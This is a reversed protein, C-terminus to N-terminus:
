CGDLRNKELIEIIKKGLELILSLFEKIEKKELKYKQDKLYDLDPIKCVFVEDVVGMNHKYIHRVQFMKLLFDFKEKDIASPLSIDISESLYDSLLELKQFLNRTSPLVMAYRSQLTKGLGDFSSVGGSLADELIAEQLDRDINVSNALNIRKFSIEISKEFIALANLKGCDPCNAFVGFIAFELGCNDCKVNTELEKEQYYSVPIKRSKYQTKIEIQIPNRRMKREIRKLEREMKKLQPEVVDKVLKKIAVTKVYELQDKTIFEEYNATYSCYPCNCLSTDLGTGLRVKFYKHCEPCERGLFGKKDLPLDIKYKKNRTM